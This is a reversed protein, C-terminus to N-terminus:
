LPAFSIKPSFFTRRTLIFNLLEFPFLPQLSSRLWMVDHHGRWRVWVWWLCENESPCSQRLTKDASVTNGFCLSYLWIERRWLTSTTKKFCAQNYESYTLRHAQCKEETEQSRKILIVQNQVACFPVAGKWDTFILLVTQVSWMKQVLNNSM